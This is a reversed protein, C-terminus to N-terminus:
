KPLTKATHGKGRCSVVSPVYTKARPDGVICYDGQAAEFILQHGLPLALGDFNERFEHIDRFGEHAKMNDIMNCHHLWTIEAEEVSSRHYLLKWKRKPDTEEGILETYNVIVHRLIQLSDRYVLNFAPLAESIRSSNDTGKRDFESVDGCEGSPLSSLRRYLQRDGEEVPTNHKAINMRHVAHEYIANLRMDEDIGRAYELSSLNRDFKLM